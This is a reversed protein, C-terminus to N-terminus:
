LLVYKLNMRDHAVIIPELRLGIVVEPKTRWISFTCIVNNTNRCLRRVMRWRQCELFMVDIFKYRQKVPTWQQITPFGTEHVNSASRGRLVPLLYLSVSLPTLFGFADTVIDRFSVTKIWQKTPSKRSFSCQPYFYRGTAPVFTLQM